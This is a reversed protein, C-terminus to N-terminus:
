YSSKKTKFDDYLLLSANVGESRLFFGNNDLRQGRDGIGWFDKSIVNEM